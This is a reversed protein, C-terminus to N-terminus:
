NDGQFYQAFLENLMETATKTPLLRQRKSAAGADEMEDIAQAARKRKMALHHLYNLSYRPAPPKPLDIPPGSFWLLENTDPDRDFHRAILSNLPRSCWFSCSM